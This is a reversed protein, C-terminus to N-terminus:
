MLCFTSLDVKAGGKKPHLGKRLASRPASPAHAPRRGGLLPVLRGDLWGNLLGVAGLMGVLWGVLWEVLWGVLWGVM